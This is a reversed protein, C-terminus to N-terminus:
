LYDAVDPWDVTDNLLDDLTADALRQFIARSYAALQGIKDVQAASEAGYINRALVDQLQQQDGSALAEGYAKGRGLYSQAMKKMRKPVTIDGVGTERLAIEFHAFVTDTLDSAIEPGPPACTNLRGVVMAAHLAVMEFRGYITDAVGLESFFESQRSRAM